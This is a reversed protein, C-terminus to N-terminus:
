PSVEKRTIRLEGSLGAAVCDACRWARVPRRATRHFDCVTCAHLYRASPHRQRSPTSASPSPLCGRWRSGRAEPYGALAMLRRWEPGHPPQGAGAPSAAAAAHAAEHTLIEPWEPSAWARLSLEVTRSRPRYRGLTTRLSPRQEVTLTRLTPANWV